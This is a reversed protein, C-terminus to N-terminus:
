TPHYPKISRIFWRCPAGIFLVGQLRKSIVTCQNFNIKYYEAPTNFTYMLM